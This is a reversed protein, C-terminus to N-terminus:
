QLSEHAAPDPDDFWIGGSGLYRFNLDTDTDTDPDITIRVSLTGDNQPQLVHTGPTWDNFTGVVSVPGFHIDAPLTFVLVTQATAPDAEMHVAM